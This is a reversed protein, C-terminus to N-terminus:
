RRDYRSGAVGRARGAPASRGHASRVALHITQDRKSISLYVVFAVIAILFLFSTVVTGLGLGGEEGPQSLYDGLSAGLPRTLVYAIWFTLVSNVKLVGHALAVLAILAAFMVASPLYGMNLREAVLDGSATGLAFTFLIALWYFSERRTSSITHISLTREVAYWAAFTVILALGFVATTIELPVGLGDTLNDTILTGVVSILAVTVWYIWPVYAGAHFQLVLFLALLGAMVCTTTTLGLNMTTSLFDAATEGVTTCLIKIIWFYVTVEPVKNLAQRAHWSATRSEPTMM